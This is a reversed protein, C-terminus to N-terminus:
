DGKYITRFIIARVTPGRWVPGGLKSFRHNLPGWTDHNRCAACGESRACSECLSGPPRCERLQTATVPVSNM